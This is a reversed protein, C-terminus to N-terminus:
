FTQAMRRRWRSTRIEAFEGSSCFSPFLLAHVKAKFQSGREGTQNRHQQWCPYRDVSFLMIHTSGVVLFVTCNGSHNERATGLAHAGRPYLRVRMIYACACRMVDEGLPFPPSPSLRPYPCLLLSALLKPLSQRLRPITIAKWRKEPAQVGLLIRVPADSVRYPLPVGRDLSTVHSWCGMMRWLVLAFFHESESYGGTHGTTFTLYRPLAKTSGM